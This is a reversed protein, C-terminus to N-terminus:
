GDSSPGVGSWGGRVWAEREPCMARKLRKFGRLISEDDAHDAICGCIGACQDHYGDRCPDCPRSFDIAADESM